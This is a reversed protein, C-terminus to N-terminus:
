PNQWGGQPPRDLISPRKNTVSLLEHDGPTWYAYLDGRWLSRGNSDKVHLDVKYWYEQTRKNFRVVRAGALHLSVRAAADGPSPNGIKGDGRHVFRTYIVHAGGDSIAHIDRASPTIGAEKAATFDELIEAFTKGGKPVPLDITPHEGAPLPRAPTPGPHSHALARTGAPLETKGYSGAVIAFGDRTEFLAWERGTTDLQHPVDGIGLQKLASADGRALRAILDHGEAATRLKRGIAVGHKTELVKAAQKWTTAFSLESTPVLEHKELYRHPREPDVRPDGYPDGHNRHGAHPADGARGGGAGPQAGQKGLAQALDGEVQRPLKIAARLKRAYTGVSGAADAVQVLKVFSGLRGGGAVAAGAGATVYILFMLMTLYGVVEGQFSGRRWDDKSEWKKMFDNAIATALDRRKAWADGLKGALARLEAFGTFIGKIVAWLARILDVAGALLDELAGWAGELLGVAFGGLYQADDLLAEVAGASADWLTKSISAQHIVGSAKLRAVFAESPMWLAQGAVVRAAGWLELAEHLSTTSLARRDVGLEARRRFVADRDKNAHYIAQVYVRADHGWAFGHGYHGAALDKLMDGPNVLALHASPEPMASAVHYSEVFGSVGVPAQGRAADGLSTVWYWGRETKRTVSVLTDFPLWAGDKPGAPRGRLFVGRPADVRSVLQIAQTQEGPALEGWMREGSLSLNLEALRALIGQRDSAALRGHFATALRDARPPSHDSLRAHLEYADHPGLGLFLLNEFQVAPAVGHLLYDLLHRELAPSVAHRPRAQEAGAARPRAKSELLTPGAAPPILTQKGVHAGPPSADRSTAPQPARQRRLQHDAM